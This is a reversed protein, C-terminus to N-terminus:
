WGLPGTRTSIRRLSEWASPSGLAHRPRAPRRRGPRRFPAGAQGICRGEDGSRGSPTACHRPSYNRNPSQPSIGGRDHEAWTTVTFYREALERPPKPVTRRDLLQGLTTASTDIFEVFRKDEALTHHETILITLLDAHETATRAFATGILELLEAIPLHDATDDPPVEPLASFAAIAEDVLASLIAEKSPFYRYILADNVDAAAALERTGTAHFGSAAFLRRAAALVDARRDASARRPRRPRIRDNM